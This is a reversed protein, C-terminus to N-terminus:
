NEGKLIRKWRAGSGIRYITVASVKYWKALFKVPTGNERAAKIVLVQKATLKASAHKEGHTSRDKSAMDKMNEDQTGDFLHTPRVCDRIDCHHCAKNIPWFGHIIKWAVRHARHQKEEWWALGYGKDTHGGTWLWCRTRNFKAIPGHKDVFSWFQKADM